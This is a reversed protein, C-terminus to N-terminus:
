RPSIVEVPGLGLDTLPDRIKEGDGVVVVVLDEPRLISQSAERVAEPTVARIEDRYTSFFDAPLDYVLLEGIRSAVQGTTELQLPFVGSLFDRSQTLEEGTPGGQVLGRLESMAEKVAPATVETAVATSIVFPGAQSRFGFRSRIGYTFGQRERLNLMLRSTFAGGLVTNFVQLPFYHPSSRPAGVQGIRIESQVAGPRDVVVIRGERSRPEASFARSEEPAGVWGGFLSQVLKEVEGPDIDGVVVMGGGGPRFRNRWLDRIEEPGVSEVSDRTGALPRHYPVSDAFIFHAVSDDALSGPDMRRQQIAALRQSKFRDVESPPFGPELLAEALLGMAEEKRDALATVSLTTSDWGSGVSLGSGINEFAEALEPGSRKTTGGELASGTLVALGGQSDPLVSEGGKLVVNMTVLPLQTMRGVRLGLGNSLSISTVEPFDFPRVPGAEPPKSRDLTVPRGGTM